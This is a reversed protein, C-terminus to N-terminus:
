LLRERLECLWFYFDARPCHDGPFEFSAYAVEYASEPLDSFM